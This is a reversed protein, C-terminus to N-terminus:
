VHLRWTVFTSFNIFNIGTRMNTEKKLRSNKLWKKFDKKSRKRIRMEIFFEYKYPLLFTQWIKTKASHTKHFITSRIKGNFKIWEVWKKVIKITLFKNSQMSKHSYFLKLTHEDRYIKFFFFVDFVHIWM